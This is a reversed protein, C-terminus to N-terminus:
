RRVYQKKRELQQLQSKAANYTALKQKMVSDVMQMEKTLIELIENLPKDARYKGSNWRWHMVYDDVSQEEVVLHEELAAADDNVLARLTDVVRTTVAAYLTELKPLDESLVM